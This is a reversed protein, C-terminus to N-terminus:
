WGGGPVATAPVDMVTMYQSGAAKTSDAQATVKVALPSETTEKFAMAFDGTVKGKWIRVRRYKGDRRKHYFEVLFTKDSSAGGGVGFGAAEYTEYTYDVLVADGDAIKTSAAARYISGNLRDLYYDTGETLVTSGDSKTVTVAGTLRGHALMTHAASTVTVSEDTVSATGATESVALFEPMLTKIVDLNTELLNCSLKLTESTPVTIITTQPFGAKLEYNEKSDTFTVDGQLQGVDNGDLFMRGSGILIDNLYRVNAM